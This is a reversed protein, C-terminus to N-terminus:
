FIGGATALQGVEMHCEKGGIEENCVSIALIEKKFSFLEKEQYSIKCEM